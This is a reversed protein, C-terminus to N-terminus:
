ILSFDYLGRRHRFGHPGITADAGAAMCALTRVRRGGWSCSPAPVYM